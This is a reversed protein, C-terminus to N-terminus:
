RASPERRIEQARWREVERRDPRLRIPEGLPPLRTTDIEAVRHWGGGASQVNYISGLTRVTGAVVAGNAVLTFTGAEIGVLSGSLSVGGSFTPATHEVIGTFVADDFLNLRLTRQAEPSPAAPLATLQGLDIAVLRSRLALRDHAHWTAHADGAQAPPRFLNGGQAAVQGALPLALLAAALMTPSATRSRPRSTEETTAM